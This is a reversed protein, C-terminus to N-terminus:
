PIEEIILNDNKMTFKPVSEYTVDIFHCSQLSRHETWLIKLFNRLFMNIFSSCMKSFYLKYLNYLGTDAGTDAVRSASASIGCLRRSVAERNYLLIISFVPYPFSLSFSM